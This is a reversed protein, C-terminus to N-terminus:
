RPKRTRPTGESEPATPDDDDPSSAILTPDTPNPPMGSVEAGGRERAYQRFAERAVFEPDLWQPTKKLVTAPRHGLRCPWLPCGFVLCLQVERWSDCSCELCALRIIKSTATRSRRDMDQKAERAYRLTEAPVTSLHSDNTMLGETFHSEMTHDRCSNVRHEREEDARRLLGIHDNMLVSRGWFRSARATAVTATIPAVTTVVASRHPRPPCWM